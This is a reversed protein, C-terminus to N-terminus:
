RRAGRGAAERHPNREIPAQRGSVWRRALLPWFIVVGPLILVRVPLPSGALHPDVRSAGLTLFAVAFILGAAAYGQLAVALLEATHLSMTGIPHPCEPHTNGFAASVEGSPVCRVPVM